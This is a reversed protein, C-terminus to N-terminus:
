GAESIVRGFTAAPVAAKTLEDVKKQLEAIVQNKTDCSQLLFSIVQDREYM